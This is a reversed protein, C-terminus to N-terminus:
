SANKPPALIIPAVKLGKRHINIKPITHENATPLFQSIIILKRSMYVMDDQMFYITMTVSTIIEYHCATNHLIHYLLQECLWLPPNLTQNLM